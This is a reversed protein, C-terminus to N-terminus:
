NYHTIVQLSQRHQVTNHARNLSFAVALVSKLQAQKLILLAFKAPGM